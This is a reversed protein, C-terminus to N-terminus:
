PERIQIFELNYYDGWTRASTGEAAAEGRASHLSTAVVLFRTVMSRMVPRPVCASEIGTM